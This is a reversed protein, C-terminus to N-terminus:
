YYAGALFGTVVRNQHEEAEGGELPNGGVELLNQGIGSLVIWWRGGGHRVTHRLRMSSAPLTLNAVKGPLYAVVEVVTRDRPVGQWERKFAQL